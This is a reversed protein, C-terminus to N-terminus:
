KFHVTPFLTLNLLPFCMSDDTVKLRQDSVMAPRAGLVLALGRVAGRAQSPPTCTGPRAEDSLAAAVAM